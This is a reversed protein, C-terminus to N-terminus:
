RINRYLIFSVLGVAFVLVIIFFSVLVGVVTPVVDVPAPIVSTPAASTVTTTTRGVSLLEGALVRAMSYNLGSFDEEELM